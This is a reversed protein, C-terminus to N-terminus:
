ASDFSDEWCCCHSNTERFKKSGEWRSIIKAPFFRFFSIEHRNERACQSSRRRLSSHQLVFISFRFNININFVILLFAFISILVVLCKLTNLHKLINGKESFFVNKEFIAFFFIM